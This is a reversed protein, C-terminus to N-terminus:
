AAISFFHPSLTYFQAYCSPRQTPYINFYCCLQPNLLLIESCLVCSQFVFIIGQALYGFVKGSKLFLSCNLDALEASYVPSHEWSFILRPTGDEFSFEEPQFSLSGPSQHGGHYSAISTDTQSQQNKNDSNRTSGTQACENPAQVSQSTDPVPPLVSFTFFKLVM